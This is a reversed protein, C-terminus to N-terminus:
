HDSVPDWRLPTGRDIDHNAYRGLVDEVYRPTLRHGSYLFLRTESKYLQVSQIKMEM